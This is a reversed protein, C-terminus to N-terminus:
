GTTKRQKGEKNVKKKKEVIKKRKKKIRMHCINHLKQKQQKLEKKGKKDFLERMKHKMVVFERNLCGIISRIHTETRIESLSDYSNNGNYKYNGM